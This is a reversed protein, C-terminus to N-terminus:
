WNWVWCRVIYGQIGQFESYLSPHSKVWLSKVRGAESEAEQTSTNFSYAVM